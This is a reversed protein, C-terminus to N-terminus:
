FKCKVKCFSTLDVVYCSVKRRQPTVIVAATTNGNDTAVLHKVTDETSIELEHDENLDYYSDLNQYEHATINEYQTVATLTDDASVPAATNGNNPELTASM